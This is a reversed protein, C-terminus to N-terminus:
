TRELVDLEVHVLDVPRDAEVFKGNGAGNAFRIAVDPHGLHLDMDVRGEGTRHFELEAVERIVVPHDATM